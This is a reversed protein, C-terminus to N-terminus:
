KKKKGHGKHSGYSYPADEEPDVVTTFDAPDDPLPEGPYAPAPEEAAVPAAVPVVKEAPPDLVDAANRLVAAYDADAMSGTDDGDSHTNAYELIADILDAFHQARTASSHDVMKKIEGM